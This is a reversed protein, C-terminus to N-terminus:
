LFFQGNKKIKYFNRKM